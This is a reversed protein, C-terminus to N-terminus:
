NLMCSAAITQLFASQSPPNTALGKLNQVAVPHAVNDDARELPARGMAAAKSAATGDFRREAMASAVASSLQSHSVRSGSHSQRTGSHSSGESGSATATATGSRASEEGGGGGSASLVSAGVQKSDDDDESPPEKFIDTLVANIAKRQSVPDWQLLRFYQHVRRAAQFIYVLYNLYILMDDVSISLAINELAAPTAEGMLFAQRVHALRQARALTDTYEQVLARQRRQFSDFMTEMVSPHACFRRWRLLLQHRMLVLQHVRDLFFQELLLPLSSSTYEARSCADLERSMCQAHLSLPHCESVEQLRSVIRAREREFHEM